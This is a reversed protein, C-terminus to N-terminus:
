MDLVEIKLRLTKHFPLYLLLFDLLHLGEFLFFDSVNRGLVGESSRLLLCFPNSLWCSPLDYRSKSAMTTFSSPPMLAPSSASRCPRRSDARIRRHSQQEKRVACLPHLSVRFGSCRSSVQSLISEAAKFVPFM